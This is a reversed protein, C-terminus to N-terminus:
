GALGSAPGADGPLATKWRWIRELTNPGLVRLKERPQNVLLRPSRFESRDPSSPRPKRSTANPFIRSSGGVAMSAKWIRWCRRKLLTALNETKRLAPWTKVYLLWTIASTAYTGLTPWPATAPCLHQRRINPWCNISHRSGRLHPLM